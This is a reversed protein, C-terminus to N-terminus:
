LEESLGTQTVIVPVLSRGVRAVQASRASHIPNRNSRFHPVCSAGNEGSHVLDLESAFRLISHALACQGGLFRDADPRPRSCTFGARETIVRDRGAFRLEFEFIGVVAAAAEVRPAMYEPLERAQRRYLRGVLAGRQGSEAHLSM